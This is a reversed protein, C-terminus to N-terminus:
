ATPFYDTYTPLRASTPRSSARFSHGRGLAAVRLFALWEWFRLSNRAEVDGDLPEWTAFATYEAVAAPKTRDSVLAGWLYAGTEVNEMDVDVEIDARPVTISEVDRRRYIPAPGLAARALDIQEPLTSMAINSYSATEPPLAALDAFTRVGAEELKALQKKSRIVAGLDKIPTEPPLDEILSQMAAVDVGDAVLRATRIDLRALGARDHVGHARHIQRQRWGVRPLLSVDGSGSELRERCYDRWPCEPCEAIAVPVVLLQVSLDRLHAQAVAIVDLRFGFEFDYREMTTRVRQKGTPSPTSWIPADLDYWVVRQETGVIGGWRGGAAALGASELMRQYHALQLLDEERKKAWFWDDITADELRPEALASCLAPLGRSVAETPALAAHHKFDVPRYGGGDAAVLLDPKGVRRGVHDAPLRGGVIVSVQCEMAEATVAELQAETEATAVLIGSFAEELQGVAGVEFERGRDFRRRLEPSAPLPQCPRLVQNQARVPCQKAVYGGQCPVASLDYRM